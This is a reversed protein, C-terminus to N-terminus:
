ILELRSSSIDVLDHFIIYCINVIILVFNDEYTFCRGDHIFLVTIVKSYALPVPYSNGCRSADSM